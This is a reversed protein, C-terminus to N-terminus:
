YVGIPQLGKARPSQSAGFFMWDLSEGWSALRQSSCQRCFTSMRGNSSRLLVGSVTVVTKRVLAFPSIVMSYVSFKSNWPSLVRLKLTSTGSVASTLTSKSYSSDDSPLNVELYWKVGWKVQQRGLSATMAKFAVKGGVQIRCIYWQM